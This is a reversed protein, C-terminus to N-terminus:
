TAPAKCSPGALWSDVPIPNGMIVLPNGYVDAALGWENGMVSYVHKVPDQLPPELKDHDDSNSKGRM